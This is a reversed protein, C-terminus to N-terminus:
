GLFRPYTRYPPPAHWETIRAHHCRDVSRTGNQEVRTRPHADPKAQCSFVPVRDARASGPSAFGSPTNRESCVRPAAASSRPSARESPAAVQAASPPARWPPGCGRRFDPDPSHLWLRVRHPKLSAGELIRWVETRSMRVGTSGALAEALTKLTWVQEFPSKDDTPRQCALKILEHHVELSIRAPRGKRYDDGM